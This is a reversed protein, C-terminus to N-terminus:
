PSYTRHRPQVRDGLVDEIYAMRVIVQGAATLPTALALGMVGFLVGALVQTGIQLAPPLAVARRQVLPTLLYSELTQLGLYFLLVYLAQQPGQTLGILVAPIGALIPGIYPVFGLVAAILGLTLALPVDLLWLGLGTAVGVVLMSCLRGLLWAGLTQDLEDLIERARPRRSPQILRILGNSYTQPESAGYIGVFLIVFLNAIGGLTSSAVGTIQAVIDSRSPLLREVQLRALAAEGWAYTQVQQRLSEVATPLRAALEDVQVAIRPLMLWGTTGMAGMLALVVVAISWGHSLHLHHAMPRAAHTLLIALLLGAFLLLFVDAAMWLLLLGLGVTAVNRVTAAVRDPGSAQRRCAERPGRM